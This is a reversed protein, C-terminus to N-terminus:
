QRSKMRKPFLKDSPSRHIPGHDFSHPRLRFTPDLAFPVLECLVIQFEDRSPSIPELCLDSVEIAKGRIMDTFLNIIPKTPLHEEAWATLSM